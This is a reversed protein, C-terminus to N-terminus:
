EKFKWLIKLSKMKMITFKMKWRIGGEDYEKRLQATEELIQINYDQFQKSSILILLKSLIKLTLIHM